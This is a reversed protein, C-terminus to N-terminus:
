ASRRLERTRAPISGAEDELGAGEGGAVPRMRPRVNELVFAAGLTAIMVALFIAIPETKKRPVELEAGRPRDVVDIVVRDNEPIDSRVQEQELYKGFAAIQRQALQQASAASEAMASIGVLPLGDGDESAIPEAMIQGNVDGDREIIRRVADSQALYSYLTALDAFRDPDGFRARDTPRTPQEGAAAPDEEEFVVIRGWPFGPQTVFITADSRWVEAERPSLSPSGGSFGIKFYSNLSLGIAVVVGAAVLLRFRWLVRAYLQLDM